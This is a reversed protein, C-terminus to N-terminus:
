KRSLRRIRHWHFDDTLTKGGGDGFECMPPGALSGPVPPHLLIDEAFVPNRKMVCMREIQKIM